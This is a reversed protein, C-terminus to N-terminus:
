NAVPQLQRAFATAYWASKQLLEAHTGEARIRGKEMVVIKDTAVVTTLRHAIIIITVNTETRLRVLSKRFLEESESDLNSTPEDLLLIPAQRVLARALDLRQRQGGSMASGGDGVLTDYGRPLEAIFGAANALEAARVVEADTADSKGYRIHDAISVNFIQPSQPVFAIKQRLDMTDIERSDVGDILITGSDPCRLRPLMDFLTSKGAGSPGIIASLKGAEFQCSLSDLAPAERSSQYAFSVNQFEIGDNLTALHINGSPLERAAKMEEFREAVANFSAKLGRKAQRTRAAEKLVPLLRMILVLFLGVFELPMKAFTISFYLFTLAATVIIPEVIIELNAMLNFIRVMRSRQRNTLREMAEAEAHEMGSLRILRTTKVREVLFASMNQNAQVIERSVKETQMLQNRIALAALGFVLMAVLTLVFSISILAAVYVIFIIGIGILNISNLLYQIARDLETTLDNVILGANHQEQYETTAAVFSRFGAARTSAALGEKLAAQYRLRTFVFAQRLLLAVLCTILLAGLSPELGFVAYGDILEQWWNHELVLQAVNGEAEVYQFIPVLTALGALELVTGVLQFLLLILASRLPLNLRAIDRQFETM